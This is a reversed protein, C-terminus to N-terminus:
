ISRRRRRSRDRAAGPLSLRARSTADKGKRMEPGFVSISRIPRSLESLRREHEDKLVWKDESGISRKEYPLTRMWDMWKHVVEVAIDRPVEFWEKHFKSCGPCNHEIKRCYRLEMHVLKEVRCIHQVPELDEQGDNGDELLKPFYVEIPKKCQRSWEELRRHVNGSRGIKLHGFNGPQWFVYIFGQHEIESPLLPKTLLKALEEAVTKTSKRTVYPKFEQILNLVPPIDSSGSTEAQSPPTSKERKRSFVEGKSLLCIWSALALLRQNQQPFTYKPDRIRSLDDFDEGWSQLEKKAVSQHSSCIAADILGKMRHFIESSEVVTLAQLSEVIHQGDAQHHRNCRLGKTTWAPCRSSDEKVHQRIELPIIKSLSKRILEEDKISSSSPLTELLNMSFQIKSGSETEDDRPQSPSNESEKPSFSEITSINVSPRSVTNSVQSQARSAQDSLPKRRGEAERSVARSKLIMTGVGLFNTHIDSINGAMWNEIRTQQLRKRRKSGIHAFHLTIGELLTTGFFKGNSTVRPNKSSSILIDQKRKSMMSSDTSRSEPLSTQLQFRRIKAGNEERLPGTPIPINTSKTSKRVPNQDNELEEKNENSPLTDLAVPTDNRTTILNRDPVQTECEYANTMDTATSDTLNFVSNTSSPPPSNELSSSGDLSPVGGGFRPQCKGHGPAQSENGDLLIDHSAMITPFLADLPLFPLLLSVM